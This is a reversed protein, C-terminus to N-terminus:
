DNSPQLSRLKTSAGFLDIVILQGQAQFIEVGINGADLGTMGGCGIFGGRGGHGAAM